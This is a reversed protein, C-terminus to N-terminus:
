LTLNVGLTYYRPNPEPSDSNNDSRLGAEPDMYEWEPSWWGLNRITGTISLKNIKTKDLLSKPLSYTLTLNDFRIFSKDRYVNFTAPSSSNIRAWDNLPNEPTWYPVVYSNFRDPYLRDNNKANNFTGKHGWMSYISFSVDFNKFINFEQRLTWRFRPVRFGQFEYDEYDIAGNNDVDKLKFDGPFSGLKSAEEEEGIQWVGLVVPDWIEDIAHGIFWLNTIDDGEKQGIVNGNADYVDVFDGYLHIIENHNLTYNFSAQWKFNERDIIRSNLSLEIGKNQVEGLNSAVTPVGLVDPLARDVLLDITNQTYIDLTGNLNNMITFDLGLNLSKTKEWKLDSNAMTNAYLINSQYLNNNLSQYAYKDLGMEALAAYRGVERNGNAGYSFRLKGYTLIDNKLFNEETFVWGLAASPFIGYPHKTGFASYGDRRISGTFMYKDKLSYFLRAMLANGTGYEDNSSIISTAGDGASMNHYGMADTPSFGRIMMNDSWSQFKESNILLTVDFKHIDMITKNWKILNDLQWSFINAHNRDAQGGFLAWDEHLASQHNLYQSWEFQPAFSLRYSIGFPLKLEAYLSSILTTYTNKRDQYFSNYLPNTSLTDETGLRRMTVGDDEYLSGFPSPYEAAYWMVPIASEDRLSFQTNTGVKFWDTIQADLNIRSRIIGFEDGVVIGENNNYGLSWYYSTENKKGSFSLNYDRRIGTRFVKDQWDISKGKAYNEQEINLLGLRSLWINQPNGEAGDLWQDLTVGSPLNKPNDFKYLKGNTSPNYWNQSRLVDQRWSIFEEGKYVPPMSALTAIGTSTSFNVVSKGEAGKKTTIMIIGNASRAGFVAASSADKLVDMREIDYPNIDEMSGPYIVGDLVILPASSTKLSNNGRIEIDGGGKATMSTGIQLGAVNGRLIDQINQPRENQFTKTQISSVAGTLDSKKQTGYGIIVVEDLGAASEELIINGLNPGNVPIEKSAFGIYSIVLIANDDAVVISFNGDFDATVGNTTGKEVINAGPLPAGESDMVTGSTSKQIVAVGQKNIILTDKLVSSQINPYVKLVIQKKRLVYYIPTGKFFNDLVELLPENVAKISVLKEADIKKNNYLFKYDTLAEITEFFEKMEVHDLDITVKTKQGYGNANVSFISVVLLLVTLKMALNFKLSCSRFIDKKGIKKM